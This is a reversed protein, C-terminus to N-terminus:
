IAIYALVDISSAEIPLVDYWMVAKGESNGNNIM